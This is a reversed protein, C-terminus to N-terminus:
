PSGGDIIVPGPDAVTFPYSAVSALDQLGSGTKNFAPLKVHITTGAWSADVNGKFIASDCRMFNSGTLHTDITSGYAGRRLYTVDYHYASTLSVNAYALLEGGVYSLTELGDAQSTPVTILAGSSITLDVSLTSVAM